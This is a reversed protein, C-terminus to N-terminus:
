RGKGAVMAVFLLLIRLSHRLRGREFNLSTTPPLAGQMVIFLSRFLAPLQSTALSLHETADFAQVYQIFFM